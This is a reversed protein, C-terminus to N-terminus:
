FCNSWLSMAGLPALSVSRYQRAGYVLAGAHFASGTQVDLVENVVIRHTAAESVSLVRCFFTALGDALFPAGGLDNTRWDGHSFREAMSLQRQGAFAKAIEEQGSRLTNVSLLAGRNLMSAVRGKRNLCILLSSPSDSVSCCATITVGAIQDGNRVAVVHVAGVVRSMGARFLKPDASMADAEATALSCEM